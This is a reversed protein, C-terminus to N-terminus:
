GEISPHRNAQRKMDLYEKTVRKDGVSVVDWLQNDDSALEVKAGVKCGREEIWGMTETSGRSLTCQRYYTTKAM